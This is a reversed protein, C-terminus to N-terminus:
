EGLTSDGNELRRSFQEYAVSKRIMLVDCRQELLKPRLLLGLKRWREDSDHRFQLRNYYWLQL